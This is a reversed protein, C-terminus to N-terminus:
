QFGMGPHDLLPARMARGHHRTFLFSHMLDYVVAMMPGLVHNPSCHTAEQTVRAQNSISQGSVYGAARTNLGKTEVFIPRRDASSPRRRQHYSVGITPGFTQYDQRCQWMKYIICGGCLMRLSQTWLCRSATEM